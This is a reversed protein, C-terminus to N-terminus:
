DQKKRICYALGLGTMILLGSGLPLANQNTDYSHGIIMPMEGWNSSSSSTGERFDSFSSSFFADNKSDNSIIQANLNLALGLTIAFLIIHKKM